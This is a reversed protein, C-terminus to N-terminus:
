DPLFGHVQLQWVADTLALPPCMPPSVTLGLVLPSAKVHAADDVAHVTDEVAIMSLPQEGGRGRGPQAAACVAAVLWAAAAWLLVLRM